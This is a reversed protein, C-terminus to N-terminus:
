SSSPQKRSGELVDQFGSRYRPTKERNSVKNNLKYLSDLKGATIKLIGLTKRINGQDLRRSNGPKM